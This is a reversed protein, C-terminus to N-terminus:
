TQFLGQKKKNAEKQEELIGLFEEHTLELNEEFEVLALYLALYSTSINSNWVERFSGFVGPKKYHEKRAFIRFLYNKTFSNDGSKDSERFCDLM